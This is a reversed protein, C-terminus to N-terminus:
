RTPVRDAAPRTALAGRLGRAPERLADGHPFSRRWALVLERKPEPPAVRRYVALEDEGISGIKSGASSSSPFAMEVFEASTQKVDRPVALM